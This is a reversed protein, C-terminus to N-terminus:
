GLGIETRSLAFKRVNWDAPLDVGRKRAIRAVEKQADFERRRWNRPASLLSM